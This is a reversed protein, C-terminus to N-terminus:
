LDPEIGLRRLQELLRAQRQREEALATEAADARAEAAETDTPIWNGAADLFRLWRRTIGKYEGQWLGLGIQLEEIWLRPNQVDLPQEQYSGAILRFFRLRETYRSFIVYYPIGLISEYVEWKAPPKPRHPPTPKLRGEGDSEGDGPVSDPAITPDVQDKASFFPGLDAKETGPSLLEVLLTPVVAEIWTVYSLRLDGGPYLRPTGVAVFWDPRKYWRPHTEDYYLNIDTGIFRQGESIHALICTAGLLDPQIDHYEDPLGPDEPSDSPLDYMTLRGLQVDPPVALPVTGPRDHPDHSFPPPDTRPLQQM